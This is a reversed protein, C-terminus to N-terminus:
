NVSIGSIQPILKGYLELSVMGYAVLPQPQVPVALWMVLEVTVPIQPLEM